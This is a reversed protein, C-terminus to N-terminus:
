KNNRIMFLTPDEDIKLLAYLARLGNIIYPNHTVKFGGAQYMKLLIALRQRKEEDTLQQLGNTTTSFEYPGPQAVMYSPKELTTIRELVHMGLLKGYGQQRCEPKIYFDYLICIKVLPVIIYKLSGIVKDHQILQTTIGKFIGCESHKQYTFQIEESIIVHQPLSVNVLTIYWLILFIRFRM